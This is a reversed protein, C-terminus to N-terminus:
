CYCYHICSRSYRCSCYCCLLLLLVITCYHLLIIVVVLKENLMFPDRLSRGISVSKNFVISIITSCSCQNRSHWNSVKQLILLSKPKCATDVIFKSLIRTPRGYPPVPIKQRLLQKFFTFSKVKCSDLRQM